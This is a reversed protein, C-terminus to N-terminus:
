PTPGKSAAIAEKAVRAEDASQQVPGTGAVLLTVFTSLGTVILIAYKPAGMATMTGVAGSLALGLATFIRAPTFM